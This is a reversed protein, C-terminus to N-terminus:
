SLFSYIGVIITEKRLFFIPCGGELIDLGAAEGDLVYAWILGGQTVMEPLFAMWEWAAM